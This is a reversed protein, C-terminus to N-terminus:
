CSGASLARRDAHAVTWRALRTLLATGTEHAGDAPRVAIAVALRRGSITVVGMQRDLYGGAQGPVSGPGWGGKLRAPRGTAGLGWRQAPITQGMLSLVQRGAPLCSMGATFRVQDRLTWTTQGFATFGSRLVRSQTRTATDGAARLQADTADAAESGGGLGQWLQEASANDSATIAQRLTPSDASVSGDALAAMAVPVKSTSWAVSRQLTGATEVPRRRGVASVAIGVDADLSAVLQDFAARDAASLIRIPAAATAPSRTSAASPAPTSATETTRDDRAPTPETVSPPLTAAAAPTAVSESSPSTGGCGVLPSAAIAM